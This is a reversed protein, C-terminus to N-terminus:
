RGSGARARSQCVSDPLALRQEDALDGHEDGLPVTALRQSRREDITRSVARHVLMRRLKPEDPRGDADLYSCWADPLHRLTFEEWATVLGTEGFRSSGFHTVAVLHFYCRDATRVVCDRRWQDHQRLM